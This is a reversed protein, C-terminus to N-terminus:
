SFHLFLNATTVQSPLIVHLFGAKHLQKCASVISALKARDVYADPGYLDVVSLEEISAM